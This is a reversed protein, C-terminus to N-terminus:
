ASAATNSRRSFWGAFFAGILILLAILTVGIWFQTPTFGLTLDDKDYDAGGASGTSDPGALNARRLLNQASALACQSKQDLQAYANIIQKNCNPGSIIVYPLYVFQNAVQTSSCTNEVFLSFSEKLISGAPPPDTLTENAATSKQSPTITGSQQLVDLLANVAATRTPVDTIKSLLTYLADSALASPNQCQIEQNGTVNCEITVDQCDRIIVNDIRCEQLSNTSQSCQSSANIANTVADNYATVLDSSLDPLSM